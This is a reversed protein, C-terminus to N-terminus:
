ITSDLSSKHHFTKATKMSSAGTPGESGLDTINGMQSSTNMAIDIIESRPLKPKKLSEVQPNENKQLRELLTMEIDKLNPNAFHGLETRYNNGCLCFVAFISFILPLVFFAMVIWSCIHASSNEPELTGNQKLKHRSVGIQKLTPLANPSPLSKYLSAYFLEQFGKLAYQVAITNNYMKDCKWLHELKGSDLSKRLMVFTKLPIMFHEHVDIDNRHCYDESCSVRINIIRKDICIIDVVIRSNNQLSLIEPTSPPNSARLQQSKMDFSWSFQGPKRKAINLRYREFGDLICDHNIHPNSQDVVGDINITNKLQYISEAIITSSLCAAFFSKACYCNISIGKKSSKNSSIECHPSETSDLQKDQFLKQLKSNNKFNTSEDSFSTLNCGTLLISTTCDMDSQCRRTQSEVYSDSLFLFSILLQLLINM